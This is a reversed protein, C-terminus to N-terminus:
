DRQMKYIVKSPGIPFISSIVVSIWMMGSVNGKGGHWPTAQLPVRTYNTLRRVRKKTRFQEETMTLESRAKHPATKAFLSSMGILKNIRHVLQAHRHGLFAYTNQNIAQVM